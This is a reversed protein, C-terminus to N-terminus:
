KKMRRKRKEVQRKADQKEKQNEKQKTGGENKAEETSEDESDDREEREMLETFLLFITHETSYNDNILITITLVLKFIARYNEIRLFDHHSNLAHHSSKNNYM